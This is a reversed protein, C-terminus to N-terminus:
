MEDLSKHLRPHKIRGRIFDIMEQSSLGYYISRHKNKRIWARLNEMEKEADGRQKKTVSMMKM